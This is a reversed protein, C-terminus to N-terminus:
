RNAGAAIGQQVTQGGVKPAGFTPDSWQTAGKSIGGASGGSFNPKTWKSAGSAIGTDSSNTQSSGDLAHEGSLSAAGRVTDWLLQLRTENSGKAAKFAFLILLILLLLLGIGGPTPMKKFSPLAPVSVNPIADALNKPSTGPTPIPKVEVTDTATREEETPAPNDVAQESVTPKQEAPSASRESPQKQGERHANTVAKGGDDILDATAEGVGEAGEAIFKKLLTLQENM